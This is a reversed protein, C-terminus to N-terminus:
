CRGLGCNSTTAEEMQKRKTAVVSINNQRLLEEYWKRVDRKINTDGPKFLDPADTRGTTVAITAQRWYNMCPNRRWKEKSQEAVKWSVFRKARSNPKYKLDGKNLGGKTQDATGCMVQRRTGIKGMILLYYHSDM